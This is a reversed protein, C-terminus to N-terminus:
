IGAKLVLRDLSIKIGPSLTSTYIEGTFHKLESKLEPHNRAIRVLQRFATIRVSSQKSLDEWITLCVDFLAGEREEDLNIKSLVKLLERQHGSKKSGLSEIIKSILPQVRQDNRHMCSYVWWAARWGEPHRDSLALNFAEEFFEPHSKMLVMWASKPQRKNLHEILPM